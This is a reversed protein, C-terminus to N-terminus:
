MEGKKFFQIIILGLASTLLAGAWSGSLVSLVLFIIFAILSLLLILDHLLAM